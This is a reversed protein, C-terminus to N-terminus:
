IIYDKLEGDVVDSSEVADQLKKLIAAPLVSKEWLKGNDNKQQLIGISREFISNCNVISDRSFDQYESPSIQVLTHSRMGCTLLTSKVQSSSCVLILASDTTPNNNLVIFYHPDSSSLEDDHYYYVSGPQITARINIRPCPPM